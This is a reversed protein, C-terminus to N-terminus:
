LAITTRKFERRCPAGAVHHMTTRQVSVAVETYSVTAADARHMCISNPGCGPAHSRHLRQLWERTGTSKQRLARRFTQSRIRQAMPENYGSSVWQQSEWAHDLRALRRLDWRWEVLEGTQPFIGILRFPNMRPLPLGALEFEVEAPQRCPRAAQIVEGRSHAATAVRRNIAYWNILALTSGSDNLAIWTGGGPEAPCLVKRGRLTLLKPPLGPPRTLKEDRNMGLLYGQRRAIFSVTCM